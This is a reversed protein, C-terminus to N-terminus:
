REVAAVIVFKEERDGGFINAFNRSSDGTYRCSQDAVNSTVRLDDEDILM